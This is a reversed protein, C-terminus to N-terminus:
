DHKHERAKQRAERAARIAKASEERDPLEEIVVQRPQKKQPPPPASLNKKFYDAFETWPKCALETGPNQHLNILIKDAYATPDKKEANRNILFAKFENFITLPDKGIEEALNGWPGDTIFNRAGNMQRSVKVVERALQRAQGHFFPDVPKESFDDDDEKGSSSAKSTIEIYPHAPKEDTRNPKEDTGNPELATPQETKAEGDLALQITDPFVLFHKTKDFAFRSNPNRFIDIFGLSQLLRLGNRIRKESWIGQMAAKLESETHWQVLSTDNIGPQGHREATANAIISQAQQDLKVNHWYILHNLLAAACADGNCLAVFSNRVIILSDNPPPTVCSTKM